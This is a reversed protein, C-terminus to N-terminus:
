EFAKGVCESLEAVLSFGRACTTGVSRGGALTPNRGMVVDVRKIHISQHPYAIRPYVM